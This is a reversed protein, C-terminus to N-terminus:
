KVILKRTEQKTETQMQILYMGTPLNPSLRITKGASPEQMESYRARGNLDLINLRSPRETAPLKIMLSENGFMPNPYVELQNAVEEAGAGDAAIRASSSVKAINIKDFLPSNQTTPGVAYPRLEITNVGQNLTINVTHIAPVGPTTEFCWNGSPVVEQFGINVGNVILRFRRVNKSFYSLSLTYDGSEDTVVENFLIGNAFVNFMNVIMGNSSTSCNILAPNGLLVANEAEYDSIFISKIVNPDEDAPNRGVSSVAIRDLKAGAKAYAVTITHTGATLFYAFSREQGGESYHFKKWYWDYLDNSLNAWPRFPEDDVKIWYADGAGGKSQIKGWIDYHDSEDVTVEFVVQGAADPVSGMSGEASELYQGNGAKPASNIAWNSGIATAEEAEVFYTVDTQVLGWPQESPTCSMAPQPALNVATSKDTFVVQDLQLNLNNSLFELTLRHKGETLDFFRPIKYWGFESAPIGGVTSFDNGDIKVNISGNAALRARIWLRYSEPQDLDFDFHIQRAIDSVGAQGPNGQLYKNNSAGADEKIEWQSGPYLACEAEFALLSAPQEVWPEDMGNLNSSNIYTPEPISPTSVQNLYIQGISTLNGNEDFYNASQVNTSANRADPQFYAYREVYDLEELYPLALKLFEEQVSRDRNPNANFETIWIPLQYDDHVRQLYAKFRNFVAQPDAFPSNQPSSAWDYWHVAVFDFRVDKETAIEKFAKLWTTPGNERPAPTGLRMGTRMNNEFYAVATAPDCLNNFQGSQDNCNDSENFGLLHNVQYKAIISNLSADSTAGAGWTMPVYEFNDRSNNTASWSYFWGADLGTVFGGTGKKTVWNWPLVRIFSITGQLAAPLTEVTLDAESAIYVKSKSTGNEEVAFTAMYGRKLVFSQTANDMANPISAGAYVTSETLGASTGTLGVGSFITLPEFEPSIARVISGTQYYQNIRFNQKYAGVQDNIWIAGLQQTALQDPTTAQFRVWSEADLLNLSAATGLGNNQAFYADTEYDLSLVGNVLQNKFHLTSAEATIGIQACEFVVDGVIELSAGDIYLNYEIPVGPDLEGAKPHKDKKLDPEALCIQYERKGEPSLCYTKEKKEKKEKGDKYEKEKKEKKDKPAKKVWKSEDGERWNKENFFDNNVEGTWYLYKGKHGCPPATTTHAIAATSSLLFASVGLWLAGLYLQKM